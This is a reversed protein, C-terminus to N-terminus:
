SQGFCAEVIRPATLMAGHRNLHDANVFLAPDDVSRYFDRYPLNLGAALNSFAARAAAFAPRQDAQRRYEPAMPFGVLCVAAGRATLEKALSALHVLGPSGRPDDPPRQKIVEERASAEREAMALDSLAGDRTQAGDAEFRRNSRFGEGRRWVRWYALLRVRHRTEAIRLWHRGERVDAYSTPAEADRAPALMSPDAQLIVRGPALGQYYARAKGAVTALNEGPFALNVFGPVGTFGLSAHSDGFVADPSQAEALFARHRDMLDHPTVALRVLLESAIAFGLALATAVGAWILLHRRLRPESSSISSNVTAVSFSASSPM